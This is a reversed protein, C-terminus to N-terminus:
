RNINYKDGVIAKIKSYDTLDSIWKLTCAGFIIANAYVYNNDLPIERLVQEQCFTLNLLTLPMATIVTSITNQHITHLKNSLNEFERQPSNRQEMREVTERLAAYSKNM